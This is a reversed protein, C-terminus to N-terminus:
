MGQKVTTTPRLTNKSKVSFIRTIESTVHPDFVFTRNLHHSRTKLFELIELTYQLSWQLPYYNLIVFEKRNTILHLNGHLNDDKNWFGNNVMLHTTKSGYSDTPEMGRLNLRMVVAHQDILRGYKYQKLAPSGTMIACSSNRGFIESMDPPVDPLYSELEKQYECIKCDRKSLFLPSTDFDKRYFNDIKRINTWKM